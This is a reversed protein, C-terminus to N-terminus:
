SSEVSLNLSAKGEKIQQLKEEEKVEELSDDIQNSVVDVINAVLLNLTLMNTCFWFLIFFLRSGQNTLQVIAEM